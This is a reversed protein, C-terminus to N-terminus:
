APNSVIVTGLAAARTVLEPPSFSAHEVRHRHGPRPERALAAEIADLALTLGAITAAHVAVGGGAAHGEQVASLVTEHTAYDLGAAEPLMLKVPGAGDVGPTTAPPLLHPRFGAEVCVRELLALRASDNRHTLDQVATVGAALLNRELE